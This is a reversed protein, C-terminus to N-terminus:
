HRFAQLVSQLNDSSCYTCSLTEPYALYYGDVIGNLAQIASVMTDPSTYRFSLQASVVIGPNQSRVYDAITSVFNVYSDRNQQGGCTDSLLRQAQINVFSIETWDVQQYISTSFDPACAAPPLGMFQGDPTTGYLIGCGAATVIGAGQAISDAPDDQESQPTAQWHEIDYLILGPVGNACGNTVQTEVSDLSPPIVFEHGNGVRQGLMPDANGLGVSVYDIPQFYTELVTIVNPDSPHSPSFMFFPGSSAGTTVAIWLETCRLALAGGTNVFDVETKLNNANQVNLGSFVHTYNTYIPNLPDAPGIALLLNGDYLKVQVTGSAAVRRAHYNGIVQSVTGGPAGSYGGVYSSFAVGVLSRVYSQDDDAPLFDTGDALNAYLQASDPSGVVGASAVDFSPALATVTSSAIASLLGVAAITLAIFWVSRLSYCM